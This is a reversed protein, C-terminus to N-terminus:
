KLSGLTIDAAAKLIFASGCWNSVLGSPNTPTVAGFGGFVATHDSTLVNCNAKSLDTDYWRFDLTLVKYTVAVGLNWTTYNPYKIGNPFAPTGYFADTTGFWYYGLEGSLYAGWDTPLWSSPATVKFTGSAYTGPAGSNLWSPSYFVNAGVAFQDTVAFTAKGYTEWFSLNGKVANCFGTPTLFLNSCTTAPGTGTYTAGGPYYYYWAGFDLGLKGFTPRFGGYFDIEAAARNPFAISEGSVGAYLQLNSSVNWRPEFYALVSPKHASQTIGRFNYDSMVDGGFALDFMSPQAQPAPTVQPKLDAAAASQMTLVTIVFAVAWFIHKM